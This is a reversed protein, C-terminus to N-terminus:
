APNHGFLFGGEIKGQYMRDFIFLHSYDQGPDLKPMLGYGFDNEPTAYDGFWGKLLSVIYKPRNSWWNVSMPDATVPTNAKQYEDLTKWTAIPM